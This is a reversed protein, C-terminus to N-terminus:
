DQPGKNVKSQDNNLCDLTERIRQYFYFGPTSSLHEKNGYPLNYLRSIRSWKIQEFKGQVLLLVTKDKNYIISM